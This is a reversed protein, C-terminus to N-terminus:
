NHEKHTASIFDQCQECTRLLIDKVNWINSESCLVLISDGGRLVTEGSPVIEEKGREISIILVGKPLNLNKITNGDMYSGHAIMSEVTIKRDREPVSTGSLNDLLQDYVPRAKLLDATVYSVLCVLSLSLLHSLSGTMESILIIGTIPSRVIATFYGAMGLIIYNELFEYSGTAQAFVAGIIAGLVLLPLFIGGPAGSGFSIMSYLFKAALLLLLADLAPPLGAIRDILSSGGGLIDPYIFCLVAALAFPILLKIATFPIHRYLKQVLSLSRNYLVGCLGLIIGLIIILWYSSLPMVNEPTVSFVPELGFIYSSVFDASVCSAMSTLMLEVSLNKHIEELSFVVGALPAGFAASLGAGAGATMLLREETRLSGTLQAFAKATMSGIQVSPGERGVSLGAGTACIGGIIKAPLLRKWSVQFRGELEGKIHPIGSGSCNKEYRVCACTVAYAILFFAATYLSVPQQSLNQRLGEVQNIGLRFLSVAIGALFGAAAGEIVLIYKLRSKKEVTKKIEM